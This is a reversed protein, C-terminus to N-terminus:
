EGDDVKGNIYDYIRQAAQLIGTYTMGEIGAADIMEYTLRLSMIRRQEARPLTVRPLSRPTPDDPLERLQSM